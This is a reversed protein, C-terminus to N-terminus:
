AAVLGALLLSRIRGAGCKGGSLGFDRYGAVQTGPATLLCRTCARTSCEKCGVGFQQQCFSAPLQLLQTLFPMAALLGYEIDSMGAYLALAVLIAGSCITFMANAFIGDVIGFRLGRELVEPSLGSEDAAPAGM